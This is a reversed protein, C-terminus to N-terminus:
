KSEVKGRKDVDNNPSTDVYYNGRVLHYSNSEVFAECGKKHTPIDVATVHGSQFDMTLVHRQCPSSGEGGGYSAVLGDADWRDIVYEQTNIEQVSVLAPMPVLTVSIEVCKRDHVGYNDCEIRVQLPLALAKSAHKSEPAWIGEVARYGSPGIIPSDKYTVAKFRDNHTLAKWWDDGANMSALGILVALVGFFIHKM